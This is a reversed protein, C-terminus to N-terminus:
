SKRYWSHMLFNSFIQSHRTLRIKYQLHTITWSVQDVANDSNAEQNHASISGAFERTDSSDLQGLFRFRLGRIYEPYADSSSGSMDLRPLQIVSRKWGTAPVSQSINPSPPVDATCFERRTSHAIGRPM